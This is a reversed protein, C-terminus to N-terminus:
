LREAVATGVWVFALCVCISTVAYLGFARYNGIQLMDLLEVSFTSFTSLGGCFGILVAMRIEPSLSQRQFLALAVGAILGALSNATFTGVPFTLNTFPLFVKGILYRLVGGFGSGIFVIILPKM